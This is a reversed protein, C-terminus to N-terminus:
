ISKVIKFNLILKKMSKINKSPM